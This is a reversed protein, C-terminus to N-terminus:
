ALAWELLFRWPLVLEELGVFLMAGVSKKQHQLRDLADQRQRLARNMSRATAQLYVTLDEDSIFNGDLDPSGSIGDTEVIMRSPKLEDGNRVSM